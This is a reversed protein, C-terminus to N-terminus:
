EVPRIDKMVKRLERLASLETVTMQIEKREAAGIAKALGELADKREDAMTTITGRYAVGKVADTTKM